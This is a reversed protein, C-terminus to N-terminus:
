PHRNLQLGLELGDLYVNTAPRTDLLGFPFESDLRTPPTVFGQDWNIPRFYQHPQTRYVPTARFRWRTPQYVPQWSEFSEYSDPVASDGSYGEVYGRAEIRLEHAMQRLKDAQAFLNKREMLNASHEMEEATSRLVDIAFQHTDAENMAAPPEAEPQSFGQVTRAKDSLESHVLTAPSQSRPHTFQESFAAQQSDEPTPGFYQRTSPDGTRTHLSELKRIQEVFSYQSDLEQNNSQQEGSDKFVTGELASQQAMFIPLLEAAAEGEQLNLAQNVSPQNKLPNTMPLLDTASVQSIEAAKPDFQEPNTTLPTRSASPTQTVYANQDAVPLMGSDSSFVSPMSVHAQPTTRRSSTNTMTATSENAIEGAPHASTSAVLIAEHPQCVVEARPTSYPGFEAVARQSAKKAQLQQVTAPASAQLFAKVDPRSSPSDQAPPLSEMARSLAAQDASSQLSTHQAAGDAASPPAVLPADSEGQSQRAVATSISLFFSSFAIALTAAQRRAIM